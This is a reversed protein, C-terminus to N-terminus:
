VKTGSPAATDRARRARMERRAHTSIRNAGLCATAEPKVISPTALVAGADIVSSLVGGAVTVTPTGKKIRTITRM